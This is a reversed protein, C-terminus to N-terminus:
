KLLDDLFLNFYWKPNIAVIELGKGNPNTCWCVKGIECRSSNKDAMAAPDVYIWEDSSKKKYRFLLHTATKCKIQVIDVIFGMEKLLNALISTYDVCNMAYKKLREINKFLSGEGKNKFTNLYYDYGLNRIKNIAEKEDKISGMKAEFALQIRGKQKATTNLSVQAISVSPIKQPIVNVYGPNKGNKKIYNNLRTKMNKLDVAVIYDDKYKGLKTDFPIKIKTQNTLDKVYPLISYLKNTEDVTLQATKYDKYINKNVM